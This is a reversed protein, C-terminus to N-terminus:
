SGLLMRGGDISLTQGNIYSSGESALFLMVPAICIEPSPTIQGLVAVKAKLEQEPLDGFSQVAMPTMAMPAIVNVSIGRDAWEQSAVRTWAQVAGKSAGYHGMGRVGRIGAISGVNIIRGGGTMARFAAQNTFFTGMFNVDLMKRMQAETIDQAPVPSGIGAISALVDLGGLWATAQAFAEEVDARQSVDCRIFRCNAGQARQEAAIAEGREVDVDMSVTQAGAQSYSTVCAAGIGSAGGTVIIRVGKLEIM